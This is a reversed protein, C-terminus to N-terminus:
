QGHKPHTNIGLKAALENLKQDFSLLEASELLCSAALNADVYGVGAGTAVRDSIFAMLEQHDVTRLSRLNSLHRMTESDTRIGGLALEALVMPHTVLEVLEDVGAKAVEDIRGQLHEIWASTDVLLQRTM